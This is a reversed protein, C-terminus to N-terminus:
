CLDREKDQIRMQLLKEKTPLRERHKRNWEAAKRRRTDKLAAGWSEFRAAAEPAGSTKLGELYNDYYKLSRGVKGPGIPITDRPYVDEVNKEIWGAGIGPRRSMTAYEPLVQSVEGTDIDLTKYHEEALDGNQKNMIYRTVYAASQWTLSGVSTRGMGWTKELDRDTWQRNGKKSKNMEELSGLKMGFVCAHHHPRGGLDGYEGIQYYRFKGRNKRWRKAFKVWDEPRLTNGEPLNENDYTLTLFWCEEPRYLSTEHMIRIAWQRSKELRCGQCRGCPIRVMTDVYANATKAARVAGDACRYGLIESYCPM